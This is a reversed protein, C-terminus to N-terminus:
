QGKADGPSSGSQEFGTNRAFLRRYAEIEEGDVDFVYSYKKKDLGEAVLYPVYKTQFAMQESIQGFSEFLKNEEAMSDYKTALDDRVNEGQAEEYLSVFKPIVSMFSLIHVTPVLLGLYKDKGLFRRASGLAVIFETAMTGVDKAGKRVAQSDATLSASLFQSGEFTLKMGLVVFDQLMRQLSSVRAAKSRTRELFLSGGATLLGGIIVGLLSFWAINM